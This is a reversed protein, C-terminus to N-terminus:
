LLTLNTAPFLKPNQSATLFYGINKVSEKQNNCSFRFTIKLIGESSNRIKRGM